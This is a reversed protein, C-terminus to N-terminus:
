AVLDNGKFLFKGALLRNKGFEFGLAILADRQEIIQLLLENAPFGVQSGRLL